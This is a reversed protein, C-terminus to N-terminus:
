QSEKLAKFKNKVATKTPLNAQPNVVKFEMFAAQILLWADGIDFNNDIDKDIWVQKRWALVVEDSIYADIIEETPPPDFGHSICVVVGQDLWKMVNTDTSTIYSVNIYDMLDDNTLDYSPHINDSWWKKPKIDIYKYTM